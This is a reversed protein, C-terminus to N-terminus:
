VGSPPLRSPRPQLSMDIQEQGTQTKINGVRQEGGQSGIGGEKELGKRQELVKLYEEQIGREKAAQLAVLQRITPDNYIIDDVTINEMIEEAEAETKGQYQVLNTKHDIEKMQYLRSGQTALIQQAVTDDAKLHVRIQIPTELDKKTLGTDKALGPVVNIITRAIELATAFAVECNEVTSDYRRGASTETMNQQRGSTGQPFGAMIFPHRQNLQAIIDQHHASMAQSPEIKRFEIKTNPPLNGLTSIDYSGLSISQTIVDSSPLDGESTILISNHAFLYFQSAINSRMACEERLLDRSYRIDSVILSAQEGDPSRRGFGGYKRVFPVIGYPNPYVGDNASRVTEGDAEFYCVDKDWYEMWSVTENVGGTFIHSVRNWIKNQPNSWNPYRAIIDSLQREFKVVVRDPIGNDDEEPSAYVVMPDLVICHIPLGRKVMKPTTWTENHIIKYFAEGRGLQGKNFEKFINPNGRKLIEIFGENFYKAIKDAVAKNKSEVFVQPKNTVIQDAPADVIRVGYGSRYLTHPDKVEPVAFTDDIYTQDIKQEERTKAYIVDVLHKGYEQIEKVSITM